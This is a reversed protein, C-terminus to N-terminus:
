EAFCIEFCTEKFPISKVSIHGGHMQIIQRSISLGIGSGTEKTTFFPIFIKDMLDESIGKGCDSVQIVAQNSVNRFARLSIIKDSATTMADIANKVLNLIVQEILKLDGTLELNQPLITIALEINNIKLSDSLLFRVHNFLDAVQFNGPEIRPNITLSRFNHVFEALGVSREKIIEIGNLVDALIEQNLERLEKVRGTQDNVLFEKLTDVSSSIPGTSNMIEHTLVRILKQWADLEQADLEHKINQFSIIRTTKDSFRYDNIKFAVPQLQGALFLRFVKQQGPNLHLLTASIRQYSKDLEDLERIQRIDLIKKGADNVMEIHGDPTCVILGTGINDVVAKLYHFQRENESRLANFKVLVRNLQDILQQYSADLQSAQLSVTADNNELSSFFLALSHNTKNMARIFLYVQLALLFVLNAILLWDHISTIAFALFLCNITIFGIRFVIGLYHKNFIM